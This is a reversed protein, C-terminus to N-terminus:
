DFCNGSGSATVDRREKSMNVTALAPCGTVWECKECSGKWASKLIWAKSTDRSLSGWNGTGSHPPQQNPLFIGGGM